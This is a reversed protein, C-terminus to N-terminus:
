LLLTYLLQLHMLEINRTAPFVQLIHCNIILAVNLDIIIWNLSLSGLVNLDMHVVDSMKHM